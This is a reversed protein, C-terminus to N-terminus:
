EIGDKKSGAKLSEIELNAATELMTEVVETLKRKERKAKTKLLAHL